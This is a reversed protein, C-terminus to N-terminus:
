ANLETKKVLDPWHNLFYNVAITVFPGGKGIDVNKTMDGVQNGLQTQAFGVAYWIYESVQDQLTKTLVQKALASHNSLWAAGFGLAATLATGVAVGLTQLAYNALPSFDFAAQIHDM